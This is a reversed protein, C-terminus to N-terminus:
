DRYRGGNEDVSERAIEQVVERFEAMGASMGEESIFTFAFPPGSPCISGTVWTDRLANLNRGFWLPFSCQIAMEDYFVDESELSAWKVVVQAADAYAEKRRWEGGKTDRDAVWGPPLDAVELITFDVAVIEKLAVVMANKVSAGEASHFQWGHDDEDHSIHTITQNGRMVHSSTMVACNPPQDFPWPDIM